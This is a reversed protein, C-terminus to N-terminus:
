IVMNWCRLVCSNGSRSWDDGDFISFGTQAPFAPNSFLRAFAVGALVGFLIIRHDQQHGEYGLLGLYIRPDLDTAAFGSSSGMSHLAEVTGICSRRDFCHNPNKDPLVNNRIETITSATCLYTCSHARYYCSILYHALWM